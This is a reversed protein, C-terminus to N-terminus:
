LAGGTKFTVVILNLDAVASQLAALAQAVRSEDKVAYAEKYAKLATTEIVMYKQFAVAVKQEQDLTAKGSNVWKGWGQMAADRTVMVSAIVKGSPNTTRCSITLIATATFLVLAVLALGITNLLKKM